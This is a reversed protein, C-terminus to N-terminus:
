DRARGTRQVILKKASDLLEKAKPMVEIAKIIMPDSQVGLKRSEETGFATLYIERKLSQKIWDNNEAWEGETFEVKDKLLGAHFDNLMQQSLDWGAPLKTEKSGFFKATFNFFAYKRLLEIQFKNLKAPIFKEDPAIGGGGYVKRGSDTMAVDLQNQTAVDKRYYYDLFSSSSYDRQILRNSPTYYKATTLALGTGENLPFVTQVLGKGFTNEGLVFGRDHDQLAGAVIEAASASYRNVLVVIPYDRKASGNRTLYPKEASARGRHSVVVQGNQLFRGAVSVGENLLGGPNERLDLILGKVNQEGVRKLNEEVEKSTNENFSEIDLHLIGPKVFFADQVSKRPIEDRIINFTLPKENGERGVVVQVQTGRQGKLLDAVETVTLNTTRKDNVELINDGPRIGARYAPSGPFPAIVVTMHNREAVTMGVGYYHGRQDERLTNYDRPDFFSSHPDLTRLMGVIAGKYIAKDSTVKDAFNGEVLAYVKSFTKMTNSVDDESTAAAVGTVGPGYIGGLISCVAVVAPYLFLSRRTDM